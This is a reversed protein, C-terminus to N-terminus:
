DGNLSRSAMNNLSETQRGQLWTRLFITKFGDTATTSLDFFPWMIGKLFFLKIHDIFHGYDIRENNIFYTYQAGWGWFPFSGVRVYSVRLVM